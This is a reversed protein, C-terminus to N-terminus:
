VKLARNIWGLLYKKFIKKKNCLNTYYSIRALKYEKVIYDYDKIDNILEITQPGIIGDPFAKVIKQIELVAEKIGANVAFDFINNALEQNNIRDLKIKDWYYKKYIEKAREKTLNKIDEDPFSRKSIGYKTEGGPDKEDNVYGGEFEILRNIYKNINAM